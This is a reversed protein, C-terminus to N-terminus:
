NGLGLFSDDVATSCFSTLPTRMEGVSIAVTKAM